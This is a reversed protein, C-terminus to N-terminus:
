KNIRQKRYTSPTIGTKEKFKKIFYSVDCFGTKEAIEYISLGSIELFEAAKSLRYELLYETITMNMMQKFYRCCENRSMSVSDALETLSFKESYNENLYNILDFIKRTHPTTTERIENQLKEAFLAWVKQLTQQIKLRAAPTNDASRNAIWRLKQFVDETWVDDSRLLYLPVNKDLFPSYYAKEYYSGHFGYLIEPHFILTFYKATEYGPAPRISHLFGPLIFFGNGATVTREHELVYVNVAGDYVVSIEITPQKHWNVFGKNYESLDDQSLMFRFSSDFEVIANMEKDTPVQRNVM